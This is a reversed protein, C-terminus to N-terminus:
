DAEKSRPIWEREFEVLDSEVVYLRGNIRSKHIPLIEDYKRESHWAYITSRPVGLRLAVTNIDLKEDGAALDITQKTEM